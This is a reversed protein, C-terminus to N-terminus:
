LECIPTPNSITSDSSFQPKFGISGLTQFSTLYAAEFWTKSYFLQKLVWVLSACM